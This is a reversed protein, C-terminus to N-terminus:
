LNKSHQEASKDTIEVLYDGAPLKELDQITIRSMGKSAQQNKSYLTRGNVDILKIDIM